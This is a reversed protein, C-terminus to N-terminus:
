PDNGTNQQYPGFEQNDKQEGTFVARDFTQTAVARETKEEEDELEEDGLLLLADNEGKATVPGEPERGRLFRVALWSVFVSLVFMRVLVVAAFTLSIVFLAPSRIRFDNLKCMTQRGREDKKGCDNWEGPRFSVHQTYMYEGDPGNVDRLRGGWNATTISRDGKSRAAERLSEIEAGAFEAMMEKPMLELAEITVDRFAPRGLVLRVVGTVGPVAGETGKGVEGGFFAVDRPAREEHRLGTIEFEIFAQWERVRDRPAYTVVDYAYALEFQRTPIGHRNQNEERRLTANAGIQNATFPPAFSPQTYFPPM